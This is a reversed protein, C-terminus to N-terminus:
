LKTKNLLTNDSTKFKFGKLESVLDSKADDLENLLGFRYLLLTFTLDPLNIGGIYELVDNHKIAVRGGSFFCTHDVRLM